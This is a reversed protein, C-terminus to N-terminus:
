KTQQDKEIAGSICCGGRNVEGSGAFVVFARLFHAHALSFFSKVNNGYKMGTRSGIPQQKECQDESCWGDVVLISFSAVFSASDTNKIKTKTTM